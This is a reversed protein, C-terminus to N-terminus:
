CYAFAGVLIKSISDESRLKAVVKGEGLEAFFISIVELDCTVMLNFICKNEGRKLKLERVFYPNHPRLINPIM